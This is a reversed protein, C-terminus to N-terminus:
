VETRELMRHLTHRLVPEADDVYAIPQGTAELRALARHRTDGGHRPTGKILVPIEGRAERDILYSYTPKAQGGSISYGGTSHQATMNADKSTATVLHLEGPKGHITLKVADPALQRILNLDRDALSIAVYRCAAQWAERRLTRHLTTVDYGAGAALGMDPRGRHGSLRRPLSAVYYAYARRATDPWGGHEDRATAFADYNASTAISWFTHVLQSGIEDHDALGALWSRPDEPDFLEGYSTLLRKEWTAYHQRRAQFLDASLGNRLWEEYDAVHLVEGAGLEGIWDRLTSQYDEVVADPTRCARNYKRGDALLTFRGGTPSLVDVVHALAACRALSHLEATDPAVGRNKVPSYPKRSFVPFVLQVPEGRAIVGQIRDRLAARTLHDKKTRFWKTDFLAEAIVEPAGPRTTGYEAHRKRARALAADVKGAAARSVNARLTPLVFDLWYDADLGVAKTAFEGQSYLAFPHRRVNRILRHGDSIQSKRQEEHLDRESLARQAGILAAASQAPGTTLAGTHSTLSM